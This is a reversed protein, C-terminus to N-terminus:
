TMDSEKTVGMSQLQGLEETWPIRLSLISSHTAMEKELPDEGDLSWVITPLNKVTQAVLSTWIPSPLHSLINAPLFFFAFCFLVSFTFKRYITFFIYLLIPIAFSVFIFDLIVQSFYYPFTIVISSLYLIIYIQLSYGNLLFFSYFRKFFSKWALNQPVLWISMLEHEFLENFTFNVWDHGVKKCDMSQDM